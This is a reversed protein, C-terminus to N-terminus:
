NTSRHPMRKTKSQFVSHDKISDLIRSFGNKTVRFKQLFEEDSLWPLSSSTDSGHGRNTSDNDNVHLDSSFRDEARSKRYKRHRKYYRRKRLESLFVVSALDKM